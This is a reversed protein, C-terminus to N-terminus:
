GMANQAFDAVNGLVNGAADMINGAADTALQGAASAADGIADGADDVMEAAADPVGDLQAGVTEMPGGQRIGGPMDTADRLQAMMVAPDNSTRDALGMGAAGAGAGALYKGWNDGLHNKVGELAGEEILMHRIRSLNENLFKKTKLTELESTEGEELLNIMYDDRINELILDIKRM